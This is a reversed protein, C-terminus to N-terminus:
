GFCNGWPIGPRTIFDTSFLAVDFSAADHPIDVRTGSHNAGVALLTGIMGLDKLEALLGIRFGGDM